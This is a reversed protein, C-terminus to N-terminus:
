CTMRTGQLYCCSLGLLGDVATIRLRLLALTKCYVSIDQAELSAVSLSQSCNFAHPMGETRTMRALPALDPACWSRKCLRQRQWSRVHGDHGEHARDACCTSEVVLWSCLKGLGPVGVGAPSSGQRWMRPELRVTGLRLFDDQSPLLLPSVTQMCQSCQLIPQMSKLLQLLRHLREATCDMALLAQRTSCRLPMNAALWYSLALPDCSPVEVQVCACGM